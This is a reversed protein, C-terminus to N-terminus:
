RCKSEKPDRRMLARGDNFRAPSGFAGGKGSARTFYSALKIWAITYQCQRALALTLPPFLTAVGESLVLIPGGSRSKVVNSMAKTAKAVLLILGSM